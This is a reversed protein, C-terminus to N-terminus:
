CAEILVHLFLARQSYQLLSSTLVFPCVSMETLKKMDDEEGESKSAEDRESRYGGRTM